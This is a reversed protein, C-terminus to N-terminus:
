SVGESFLIESAKSTWKNEYFAYNRSVPLELIKKANDIAMSKRNNELCLMMLSGLAEPRTRDMEYVKLYTIVMKYFPLIGEMDMIRACWLAAVYCYPQNNTGMAKLFQTYAERVKGWQFTNESMHAQIRLMQGIFFLHRPNNDIRYANRLTLIDKDVKEPDKSRAGDQPTTVYPNATPKAPDGIMTLSMENEDTCMLEEHIPYRYKFKGPINKVLNTRTCINNGYVMPFCMMLTDCEYLKERLIKAQEVTIHLIEDADLLLIHSSYSRYAFELAQNRNTSFDAWEEHLVMADVWHLNAWICIRRSTDDVSGTDVVRVCDRGVQNLLPLCSDLLREICHAEDRVILCLCFSAEKPEPKKNLVVPM